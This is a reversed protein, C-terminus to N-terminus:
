MRDESPKEIKVQTYGLLHATVATCAIRFLQEGSAVCRAELACQALHRSRALQGQSVGLDRRPDRQVDSIVLAIREAGLEVTGDRANRLLIGAREHIRRM